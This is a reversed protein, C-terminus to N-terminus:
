QLFGKHHLPKVLQVKLRLKSTRWFDFIKKKVNICLIILFFFANSESKDIFESLPVSICIQFGGWINTNM